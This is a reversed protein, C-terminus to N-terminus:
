RNRRRRLLALPGLLVWAVLPRHGCALPRPDRVPLRARGAGLRPHDWGLGDGLAWGQLRLAAQRPTLSPDDSLVVAILGAVAPASASTGYFGQGGMAMTSVGDPGAIDPKPVGGNSPGHSSFGEVDNSLYGDARVAGVSFALPHAAPDTLSGAPIPRVLEGGRVLVDVDVGVRVGGQISVELNLVGEEPLTAKVTEVPRCQDAEAEQAQSGRGYVEGAGDNLEADLDTDGCRAHQNWNVYVTTSGRGFVQLFNDGYFDLLGDGDADVLPGNWHSRADNGASTVMLVDAAELQFLLDDFISHAGDYFTHNYFSMSMSIVDVEERIAWAVANEFATLSSVRVLHLQVDPAVDRVVEACALGHNGDEFSLRPREMDIPLDCTPTAWCDHTGDARAEDTDGNPGYWGIDFIAIKVGQGTAGDLHWLDANTVAVAETDDFSHLQPVPEVKWPTGPPPPEALVAHTASASLADAHDPQAVRVLAFPDLLSLSTALLLASSSV